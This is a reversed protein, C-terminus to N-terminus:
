YQVSTPQANVGTEESGGDDEEDNEGDDEPPDEEPPQQSVAEFEHAYSIMVAREEMM